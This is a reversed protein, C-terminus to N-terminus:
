YTYIPVDIGANMIARALSVMDAGWNGTIIADTNSQAIKTVYPTFDKVNEMPHLENGVIEIDPRKIGLLEVAEDAVAKGFSYDQGIIYVRKISRYLSYSNTGTRLCPYNYVTGPM